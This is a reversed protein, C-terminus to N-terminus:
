LGPMPFGSSFSEVEQQLAKIDARDAQAALHQGFDKLKSPAPTSSKLDIAIQVGRDSWVLYQSGTM